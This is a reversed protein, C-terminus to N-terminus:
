VIELVGANETTIDGSDNELIVVDDCTKSHAIVEYIDDAERGEDLGYITVKTGIPLDKAKKPKPKDVKGEFKILATTITVEFESLQQHIADLKDMLRDFSDSKAM